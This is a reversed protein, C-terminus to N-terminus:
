SVSMIIFNGTITGSDIAYTNSTQSARFVNQIYYTDWAQQNVFDPSQAPRSGNWAVGASGSRKVMINIVDGINCNVTVSSQATFETKSVSITGGGGGKNARFRAM